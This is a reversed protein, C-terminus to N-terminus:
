TLTQSHPRKKNSPNKKKLTVAVVSIWVYQSVRERWSARGIERTQLRHDLLLPFGLARLLAGRALRTSSHAPARRAVVRPDRVGFADHEGAGGVGLAVHGLDSACVDSSWDSIRMEYATKQKCCCFALSYM